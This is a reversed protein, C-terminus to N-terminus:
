ESKLAIVPDLQAAARAPGLGFVVGTIGAMAVAVVLMIPSVATAWHFGYETVFLGVGGLALGILGGLAALTVAEVLFQVMVDKTRAGLAMRLGIERTRAAVSVLMINMVGIGGVLLSVAAASALLYTFTRGAQRLSKAMEVWSAEEFGKSNSHVARALRPDSGMGPLAANSQTEVRFDDVMDDPLRHATRLQAKLEKAVASTVAISTTRVTITDYNERGLLAGGLSNSVYVVPIAVGGSTEGGVDVVGAIRVQKGGIPLTKDVPSEADPWLRKAVARTVMAVPAGDRHEAATPLRGEVIKWGTMDPWDFDFGSLRVISVPGGPDLSANGQMEGAVSKVNPAGRALAIDTAGLPTAPSNYRTKKVATIRRRADVVSEQKTMDPTQAGDASAGTAVSGEGPEGGGSDQEGNSDIASPVFNGSRITIRTPGASEIQSEIRLQAGRGLGSVIVVMAVGVSMGLLTLAAQLRNQTLAKLAMRINTLM